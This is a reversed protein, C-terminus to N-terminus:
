TGAPVWKIRPWLKKKREEMENHREQRYGM